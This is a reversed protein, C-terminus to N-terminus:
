KLISVQSRTGLLGCVVFVGLFMGVAVTVVSMWCLLQNALRIEPDQVKRGLAGVVAICGM